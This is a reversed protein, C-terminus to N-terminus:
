AMAGRPRRASAGSVELPGDFQIRAVREKEPVNRTAIHMQATIGVGRRNQIARQGDSRPVPQDPDITGPNIKIPATIEAWQVGRNVCKEGLVRRGSGDDCPVPQMQGKAFAIKLHGITGQGGHLAVFSEGNPMYIEAPSKPFRHDGTKASLGLRCARREVGSANLLFCEDARLRRM